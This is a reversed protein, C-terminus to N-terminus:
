MTKPLYYAKFDEWRYFPHREPPLPLRCERECHLVKVLVEGAGNRFFILQINTAMPSIRYDAWQECVEDYDDSRFTTGELELLAALPIVNIDHGFRLTAAYGLGGAAAMDAKEIIDALLPKADAVIPDGWEKSPGYNLYRRINYGRWLNYLEDASFLSLMDIDIDVCQLDIAVSFINDYLKHKDKINRDAYDPDVFLRDLLDDPHTISHRYRDSAETTAKKSGNMGEVSFMYRSDAASADRHFRIDPNRRHLGDTFSIMSIICRTALTAHCDVECSGAFVDPYNDYMRCAIAEHERRGRPSLDGYRNRAHAAVTEMDALLQRGAPTLQGESDAKRLVELPQVYPKASTCWRSGHRGYHSIYFPEFGEPAPTPAGAEYHYTYYIGGAREPCAAIEDRTSQAPAQLATLALLLAAGCRRMTATIRFARM